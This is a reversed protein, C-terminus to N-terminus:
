RPQSALKEIMRELRDLRDNLKEFRDDAGAPNQATRLKETIVKAQEAEEARARMEKHMNEMLARVDDSQARGGQRLAELEARLAANEARLRNVEDRNPSPVVFATGPEGGYIMGQPDAFRSRWQARTDAFSKIAEEIARRAEDVHARAEPSDPRIDLKRIAEELARRVEDGPGAAGGFPDAGQFHPVVLADEYTSPLSLKAPDYKDLKIEIEKERGGRLITVALTDGPDRARLLERLREQTAPGEGEIEIIIDSKRLGAKSAPLGEIVNDILISDGEIEHDARTEDDLNTMTIGLMVKPPEAPQITALPAVPAITFGGVGPSTSWTGTARPAHPAPTAHITAPAEVTCLVDGDEGMLKVKGDKRVIRNQKVAKDNIFAKVEDGRIEIRYTDSGDSQIYTMQSHHVVEPQAEGLRVHFEGEPQGAVAQLTPVIEFTFGAGLDEDSLISVQDTCPKECAPQAAAQFAALASPVISFSLFRPKAGAAHQEALAAAKQAPCCESQALGASALLLSAAISMQTTM